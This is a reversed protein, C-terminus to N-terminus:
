VHGSIHADTELLYLSFLFGNWSLTITCITQGVRLSLIVIHIQSSCLIRINSWPIPTNACLELQTESLNIKYMTYSSPSTFLSSLHILWNSYELNTRFVHCHEPFVYYSAIAIQLIMHSQNQSSFLPSIFIHWIRCRLSQTSHEQPLM